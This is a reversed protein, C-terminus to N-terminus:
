ILCACEKESASFAEEPTNLKRSAYLVPHEEGCDDEQCLIVGLGRNSVHCQVIFPRNYDPTRLLPSSCLVNQLQRFAQEM